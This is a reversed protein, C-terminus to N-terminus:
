TSEKFVVMRRCHPCLVRMIDERDVEEGPLGAPQPAPIMEGELTLALGPNAYAKPGVKEAVWRIHDKPAIAEGCGTCVLLEKEVTTYSESRDFTALDYEHTQYIGDETTCNYHCHGCFICRDYNLRFRRQPPSGETDDVMEIADAPCVEYCAGCGICEDEDWVPAGRFYEVDAEGAPFDVTYPGKVVAKIAEPLYPIKLCWLIKKGLTKLSM